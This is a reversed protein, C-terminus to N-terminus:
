LEGFGSCLSGTMTGVNICSRMLCCGLLKGNLMKM